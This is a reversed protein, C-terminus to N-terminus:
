ARPDFRSIEALKAYLAREDDTPEPPVVVQSEAYLDGRGGSKSPYGRERLRIQRGSSSGPPVKVKVRGELTVLEASAGLVAEPPSIRLTTHVDDGELRFRDDSGIKVTLYLDSGGAGQGALRIHQGDRVRPPVQVSLRRREGTMTDTFHIERSGGAFADAVSLELPTEQDAPRAGPRGRARGGARGQQQAFVQEFISRLDDVNSGFGFPGFDFSVDAPNPAGRPPARGESIAKWQPGYKDFLQRKKPDKLVEYAEQVEKFRAEANPEKSVDPHDKRALKRYARQLDQASADRGVGLVRYYDKYSVDRSARVDAPAAPM